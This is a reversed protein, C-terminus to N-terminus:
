LIVEKFLCVVFLMLFMGLLIKSRLNIRKYKLKYFEIKLNNQLIDLKNISYIICPLILNKINIVKKSKLIQSYKIEDKSEMLFKIFWISLTMDLSIKEVDLNIKKLPLLVGYFGEHMSKFDTNLFLILILVMIVLLKYSFLVISIINQQKLMIIYAVLFILLLLSLKKLAKVYFNVKEDTIVFLILTLITIFLILYISKALLLTLILILLAILRVSPSVKTIFNNQM